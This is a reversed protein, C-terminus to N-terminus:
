GHRCRSEVCRPLAWRGHVSLAAKNTPSENCIAYKCSTQAARMAGRQVANCAVFHLTTCCAVVQRGPTRVGRATGVPVRAVQKNAVKREHGAVKRQLHWGTGTLSDTGHNWRYYQAETYPGGHKRAWGLDALYLLKMLRTRGEVTGWRDVLHELAKCLLPFRAM